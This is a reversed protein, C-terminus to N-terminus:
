VNRRDRQVEDSRYKREALHKRKFKEILRSLGPEQVIAAAHSPSLWASLRESSEKFDELVTQAELAFVKVTVLAFHDPLRKWYRYRGLPKKSCRGEIGAEQFAERAAAARDKVGKMRWGKPIVPRNTQRSTILLIQLHGAADFRYVLAGVQKERNRRNGSKGM